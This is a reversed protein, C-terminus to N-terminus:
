GVFFLCPNAAYVQQGSVNPLVGAVSTFRITARNVTPNSCDGQGPVGNQSVSVVVTNQRGCSMLATERLICTTTRM